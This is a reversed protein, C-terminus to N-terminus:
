TQHSYNEAFVFEEADMVQFMKAILTADDAFSIQCSQLPAHKSQPMEILM